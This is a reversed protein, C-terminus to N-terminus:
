KVEDWRVSSILTQYATALHSELAVGARDMDGSILAEIIELHEAAAARNRRIEHAKNWRYHFHVIIAIMRGFDLIFRNRAARGLMQHFRADLAPFSLAASEPGHIIELHERALEELEGRAFSGRGMAIENLARREFLERVVFMEDAFSRTFGKLVWARNPRKEILGFPGFRILFERVAGVSVGFDRALQADHIITGPPVDGNLIWTLFKEEVMSQMTLTEHEAFYDAPVPARVLHKERGHWQIIGLDALHGLVARVTTRSADLQGALETETGLETGPAMEALRDLMQNCQTKFLNNDRAVVLGESASGIFLM